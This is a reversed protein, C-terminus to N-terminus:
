INMGHLLRAPCRLGVDYQYIMQTPYRSVTFANVLLQIEKGTANFGPHSFLDKVLLPHLGHDKLFDNVRKDTDKPKDGGTRASNDGPRNHSSM